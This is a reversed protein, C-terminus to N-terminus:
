TQLRLCFFSVTGASVRPTPGDHFPCSAIRYLLYLHYIVAGLIFPFCSNNAHFLLAEPLEAAKNERRTGILAAPSPMDQKRSRKKKRPGFSNEQKAHFLDLTIANIEIRTFDVKWLARHIQQEGLWYNARSQLCNQCCLESLLTLCQWALLAKLKWGHCSENSIWIM